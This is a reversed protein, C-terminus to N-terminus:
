GWLIRGSVTTKNEPRNEPTSVGGSSASSGSHTFHPSVHTGRLLGFNPTSGRRPCPSIAIQILSSESGSAQADSLLRRNLLNSPRRCTFRSIGSCNSGCYLKRWDKEKQM